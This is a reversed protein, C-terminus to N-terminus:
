RQEAPESKTAPPTELRELEEGLRTHQERLVEVSMPHDLSTSPAGGTPTTDAQSSRNGRAMFFMMLGMGVPCALLALAPLLAEM